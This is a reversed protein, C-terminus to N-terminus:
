NAELVSSRAEAQEDTSQENKKKLYNYIKYIVEQIKFVAVFGIGGLELAIIINGLLSIDSPQSSDVFVLCVICIYTGVELLVLFAEQLALKIHTYVRMFYLTILLQCILLSLISFVQQKEQIEDNFTSLLYATTINRLLSSMVMFAIIGNSGKFDEIFITLKDMLSKNGEWVDLEHSYYIEKKYVMGRIMYHTLLLCVALPFLFMSAGVLATEYTPKEDGYVIIRGCINVFIDLLYLSIAIQFIPTKLVGSFKRKLVKSFILQIIIIPIIIVSIWFLLRILHQYPDDDTFPSTVSNEVEQIDYLLRRTGSARTSFPLNNTLMIWENGNAVQLFGPPMNSLVLGAKMKMMQYKMIIQPLTISSITLLPTIINLVICGIFLSGLIANITYGFNNSISTYLAEDYILVKTILKENTINGYINTFVPPVTLIIEGTIDKGVTLQILITTDNNYTIICPLFLSQKVDYLTIKSLETSSTDCQENLHLVIYQDTIFRNKILIVPPTQDRLITLINVNNSVFCTGSLETTNITIRTLNARLSTSNSISCNTLLQNYPKMIINVTDVLTYYTSNNIYLLNTDDNVVVHSLSDLYYYPSNPPLPPPPSPPPSPPIPPNPNLPPYPSMPPYNPFFPSNNIIFSMTCSYVCGKNNCAVVKWYYTSPTYFSLTHNLSTLDRLNLLINNFNNNQSVILQYSSSLNSYWQITINNNVRFITGNIPFLNSPISPMSDLYITVQSTSSNMIVIYYNSCNRPIFRIVEGQYLSDRNFSYLEGNTGDINEIGITASSGFSRPNGMLTLYAFDITMNNHLIVQFTGLPINTNYFYMNSWQVIFSTNTSATYISNGTTILDDWFPAIYNNPVSTSTINVNTYATWGNVPYINSFSVMGNINVGISSYDKCMYTFNWPLNVEIANDDGSLQLQLGRVYSYHSTDFCCSVNYLQSILFALFLLSKLRM